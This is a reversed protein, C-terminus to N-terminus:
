ASALQSENRVRAHETTACSERCFGLIELPDLITVAYGSTRRTIAVSPVGDESPPGIWVLQAWLTANWRTDPSPARTRTASDSRNKRLMEYHHKSASPM